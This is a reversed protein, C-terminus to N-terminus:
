AGLPLGILLVLGCGAHAESGPQFLLANGNPNDGIPACVVAEIPQSGDRKIAVIDTLPLTLGLVFPYAQLGVRTASRACDAKSM